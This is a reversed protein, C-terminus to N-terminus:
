SVRRALWLTGNYTLVMSQYATTLTKTGAASGGAAIQKSNGDVTVANVAAQGVGDYVEITRGTAPSAPLTITLAGATTDTTIFYDTGLLTYPSAAAAVSTVKMKQGSSFTIGSTGATLTMGSAAGSATLNFADSASEGATLTMSGSTCVIDIDKGAAGTATIDMGGASTVQVSDANTETSAIVASKAVSAALGGAASTLQIADDAAEEANIVISGLTSQITLDAAGTVKYHTAVTTDLSITGSATLNTFAATSPTTDGIPGPASMVATLNSPQVFYAQSGTSAIRAVANADSVLKGIGSTTTTAVPAGAIALNDAYYKTAVPDNAVADDTLIVLGYQTSTAHEAGAFDWVGAATYEYVVGNVNMRTGLPYQTTQSTPAVSSLLYPPNVYPDLGVYSLSNQSNPM